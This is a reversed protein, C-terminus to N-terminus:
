MQDEVDKSSPQVGSSSPRSAGGPLRRNAFVKAQIEPIQEVAAREGTGRPVEVAAQKTAQLGLPACQCIERAALEMAGSTSGATRFSRGARLGLELARQADFEDCRLLHYM